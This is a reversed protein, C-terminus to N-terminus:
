YDVKENMAWKNTVIRKWMDFEIDVSMRDSQKSAVAAQLYDVINIFLYHASIKMKDGITSNTTPTEEADWDETQDTSIIQQQSDAWTRMVVLANTLFMRFKNTSWATRYHNFENILHDIDNTILYQRFREFVSSIEEGLFFCFRLIEKLYSYFFRVKVIWLQNEFYIVYM